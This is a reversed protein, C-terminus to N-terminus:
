IIELGVLRMRTEPDAGEDTLRVRLGAITEQDEAWRSLAATLLLVGHEGTKLDAVKVTPTLRGNRSLRGMNRDKPEEMFEVEMQGQRTLSWVPLKDDKGLLVKGAKRDRFGDRQATSKTPNNRAM